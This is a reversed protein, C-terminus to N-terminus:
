FEGNLQENLYAKVNPSDPKLMNEAWAIREFNIVEMEWICAFLGDGSIKRFESPNDHPSIFVHTNIMNDGVWWNILTFIGEKGKHLILFGLNEHDANFSNGMELWKPLNPKLLEFNKHLTQEDDNIYYVKLQWQNALALTEKFEIKRSQYKSM